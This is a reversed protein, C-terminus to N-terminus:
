RMAAVIDDPKTNVAFTDLLQGEPGILYITATHQVTYNNQTKTVVYSVSFNEAAANIQEISGGLGLMGEGFSRAYDDSVAPSDRETDVSIFVGAADKDTARQAASMNFAMMPCIHPCNTFGFALLLYRGRFDEDRVTNGDRDLLEFDVVVDTAASAAASQGTPGMAGEAHEAHATMAAHDHSQGQAYVGSVSFLLVLFLASCISEPRNTRM